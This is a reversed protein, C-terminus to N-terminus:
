NRVAWAGAPVAGNKSITYVRSLLRSNVSLTVRYLKNGLGDIVYTLPIPANKPKANKQLTSDTTPHARRNKSSNDNSRSASSSPTVADVFQQFPDAVQVAYGSLRLKRELVKGFADGNAESLLLRTSAPPYLKRLQNSADNAMRTSQAESIAADNQSSPACASLVGIGLLVIFIRRM